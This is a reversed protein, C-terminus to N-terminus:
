ATPPTPVFVFGRVRGTAPDVTRSTMSARLDVPCVSEDLAVMRLPPRSRYQVRAMIEQGLYCGKSFSVLEPDALNLLMPDDYDIGQLAINRDLRFNKFDEESAMTGIVADPRPTLLLSGEGAARAIKFEGPAPSADGGLDWFVSLPLLRLSADSLFLFKKLHQQLRDAVADAVVVLSRESDIRAQSYVAVAKGKADIFAGRPADPTQTTYAKLFEAARPGLELVSANLRYFRM